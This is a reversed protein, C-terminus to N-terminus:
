AWKKNWREMGEKATNQNRSARYLAFARKAVNLNVFHKNQTFGGAERVYQARVDEPIKELEDELEARHTADMVMHASTLTQAVKVAEDAGAINEIRSVMNAVFEDRSKDGTPRLHNVWEFLNHQQPQERAELQPAPQATTIQRAQYTGGDIGYPIDLVACVKKTVDEYTPRYRQSRIWYRLEWIEPSEVSYRQRNKDLQSDCVRKRLPALTRTYSDVDMKDMEIGGIRSIDSMIDKWVQVWAKQGETDMHIYYLFM